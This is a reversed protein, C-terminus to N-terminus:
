TGRKDVHVARRQWMSPMSRELSADLKVARGIEGSHRSGISWIGDYLRAMRGGEGSCRGGSWRLYAPDCALSFADGNNKFFVHHKAEM